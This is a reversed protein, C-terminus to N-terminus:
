AEEMVILRFIYRSTEKLKISWIAIGGGKILKTNFNQLFICQGCYSCNNVVKQPCQANAFASFAFTLILITIIKKM